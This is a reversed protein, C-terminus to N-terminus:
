SMLAAVAAGKIPDYVKVLEVECGSLKEATAKLGNFYIKDNLIVGGTVPVVVQKNKLKKKNIEIMAAIAAGWLQWSNQLIIKSFRAIKKKDEETLRVKKLLKFKGETAESVILSQFKFGQNMIERAIELKMGSLLCAYALNKYQYRGSSQKEMIHIGPHELLDVCASMTTQPVGDFSGSELNRLNKLSPHEGCINAGTGMVLGAAAEKVCLALAVTDNLIVFKKLEVGEKRLSKLYLKGVDVGIIGPVKLAKTLQTVVGTVHGNYKQPEHPYSFIFGVRKANAQKILPITKKALWEVFALPNVHENIAREKKIQKLWRFKKGSYVVAGLRLYSGGLDIVVVPKQTEIEKNWPKILSDFWALSEIKGKVVSKSQRIFEKKIKELEETKLSKFERTQAIKFSM